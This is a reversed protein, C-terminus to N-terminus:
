QAAAAAEDVATALSGLLFLFLLGLFGLFGLLSHTAPLHRLGGGAGRLKGTVLEHYRLKLEEKSALSEGWKAERKTLPPHRFSSDPPHVEQSGSGGGLGCHSEMQEFGRGPLPRQVVAPQQIPRIAASPGVPVAVDGEMAECPQRCSVSEVVGGGGLGWGHM